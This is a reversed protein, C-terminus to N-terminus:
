NRSMRGIANTSSLWWHNEMSDKFLRPWFISMIREKPIKPISCAFLCTPGGSPKGSLPATNKILWATPIRRISSSCMSWCTGGRSEVQGGGFRLGPKCDASRCGPEDSSFVIVQGTTPRQHGAPSLDDVGALANLLTSKGAGCPGVITVVLKREFREAINDIMQIAMHCQKAHAAAPHWLSLNGLTRELRNLDNKFGEIKALAKLTGLQPTSTM